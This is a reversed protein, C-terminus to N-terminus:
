HPSMNNCAYFHKDQSDNLSNTSKNKNEFVMAKDMNNIIRHQVKREYYKGTINRWKSNLKVDCETIMTAYVFYNKIGWVSLYTSKYIWKM